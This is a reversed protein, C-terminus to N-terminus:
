FDKLDVLVKKNSEAETKRLLVVSVFPFGLFIFSVVFFLCKTIPCLYQTLM